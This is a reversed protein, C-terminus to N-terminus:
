RRRTSRSSRQSPGSKGPNEGVADGWAEFFAAADDTTSEAALWEKFDAKSLVLQAWTDFDGERLAKNAATRWKGVPPVTVEFEGADTVLPVLVGDVPAEADAQVAALADAM